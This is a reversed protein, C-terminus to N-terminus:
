KQWTLDSVCNLIHIYLKYDKYCNLMNLTLALSKAGPLIYYRVSTTNNLNIVHLHNIIKQFVIKFIWM